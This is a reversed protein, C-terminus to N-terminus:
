RTGSGTHWYANTRREEVLKKVVQKLTPLTYGLWHEAESVNLTLDSHRGTMEGTKAYTLPKDMERALARVFEEKTFSDSSAINITGRGSQKLIDLLAKAFTWIDISSVTVNTYLTVPEDNEIAKFAWATNKPGVINTRVVLGNEYSLAFREGAAKTLAYENILPHACQDSSIQVLDCGLVRCANALIAVPRANVMYATRPNEECQAHDILAAANIVVDPVISKVFLDLAADDTINVKHRSPAIVEYGRTQAEQILARGLMGSAGFILCRM